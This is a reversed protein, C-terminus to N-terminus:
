RVVSDHWQLTQYEITGTNNFYALVALKNVAVSLRGFAVINAPRFKTAVSTCKVMYTAHFKVPDGQYVLFDSGFKSGNTLYYGKKWLDHFVAYKIKGKETRLSPDLVDTSINKEENCKLHHQTPLHVLLHGPAINPIKNIEEQLLINKDLNVDSIGKSLLKQKKGAVIIDIKQSLQEIKRKKLAEKQELTIRNECDDIQLKLDNSPKVNLDTISILECIGENVLLTAEETMLSMPLGQFDNQRPFSPLSGILAGCIRYKVRLTYWDESNWVYASGNTVYLPIM